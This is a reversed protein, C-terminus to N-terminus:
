EDADPEGSHWGDDDQWGWPALKCVIVFVAACVILFALSAQILPIM